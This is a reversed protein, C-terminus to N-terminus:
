QVRVAETLKDRSEQLRKPFDPDNSPSTAQAQDLALKADTYRGQLIAINAQTDLLYPAMPGATPFAQDILRKARELHKKEAVDVMALNNVAGANAPAAKSARRFYNRASKWDHDEFALNGLAMLAPVHRGDEDLAAQYQRIAAAKEDHTLYSDGLTVHEAASLPDRSTVSLPLNACASLTWVTFLLIVSRTRTM